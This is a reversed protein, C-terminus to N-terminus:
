IISDFLLIIKQLIDDIFIDKNKILEDYKKPHLESIYLDYAIELNYKLFDSSLTNLKNIDISEKEKNINSYPIDQILEETIMRTLYKSVFSINIIKNIDRKLEEISIYNKNHNM